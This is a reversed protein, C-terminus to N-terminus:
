QYFFFNRIIQSTMDLVCGLSGVPGPHLEVTRVGQIHPDVVQIDGVVQTGGAVAMGLVLVLALVIDVVLRSGREAVTDQATGVATQNGVVAVQNDVVAFREVPLRGVVSARRDHGCVFSTGPRCYHM